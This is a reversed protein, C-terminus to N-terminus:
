LAALLLEPRFAGAQNLVTGTASLTLVHASLRFDSGRFAHTAALILAVPMCLAAITATLSWSAAQARLDTTQTPSLATESEPAEPAPPEPIRRPTVPLRTVNSVEPGKTPAAPPARRSSTYSQAALFEEPTLASSPSLWEVHQAEVMPLVRHVVGSLIEAARRRSLRSRGPRGALEFVIRNGSVVARVITTAGAAASRSRSIRVADPGGDLDRLAEAAGRLMASLDPGAPDPLLLAAYPRVVHSM